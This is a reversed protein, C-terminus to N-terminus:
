SQSGQRRRVPQPIFLRGRVRRQRVQRSRRWREPRREMGGRCSTGHTRRSSHTLLVAYKLLPLLCFACRRASLRFGRASLRSGAASAVQKEPKPQPPIEKIIFLTEGPKILGLERRAEEEIASPSKGSGGRRNARARRQRRPRTRAVTRADSLRAAGAAAVATRERRRDCRGPLRGDGALLAQRLLRWGRKSLTAKLSSVPSTRPSPPQVDDM